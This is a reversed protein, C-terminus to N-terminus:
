KGEVIEYKDNLGSGYFSAYTLSLGTYAVIYHIAQAKYSFGDLCLAPQKTEKDIIYFLTQEM